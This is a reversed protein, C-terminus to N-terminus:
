REDEQHTVPSPSLAAPASLPDSHRDAGLEAHLAASAELLPGRLARTDTRGSFSTVGIVGTAAGHRGTVLAAACHCGVRAQEQEHAFGTDAAEDLLAALRKPDSVSYRTLPRCGFRRVGDALDPHAAMHLRGSATFVVSTGLGSLTPFRSRRMSDRRETGFVISVPRLDGGIFAAFWAIEGRSRHYLDLLYPQVAEAYGHQVAAHLGQTLLRDGTRYGIPTRELMGRAALDNAIRHVTPKPIGTSRALEALRVPGAADAVVDLIAVARGVVTGDDLVPKQIRSDMM